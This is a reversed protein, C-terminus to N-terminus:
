IRQESIQQVQERTINFKKMTRQTVFEHFALDTNQNIKKQKHPSCNGDPDYHISVFVHGLGQVEFWDVYHGHNMKVDQYEAEDLTEISTMALAERVGESTEPVNGDDDVVHLNYKFGKTSRTM